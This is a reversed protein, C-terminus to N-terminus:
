DLLSLHLHSNHLRSDPSSSCSYAVVILINSEVRFGMKKGLTMATQSNSFVGTGASNVAAVEISYTTSPTLGSIITQTTGAGSVPM